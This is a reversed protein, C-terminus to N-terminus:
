TPEAMRACALVGDAIVLHHSTNVSALVLYHLLAGGLLSAQLSVFVFM